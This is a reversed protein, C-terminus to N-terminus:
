PTITVQPATAVPRSTFLSGRTVTVIIKYDIPAAGALTSPLTINLLDYGFMNVNPGVATAAVDTNTSGNVFTVKAESPLAFRVGTLYIELKTPV